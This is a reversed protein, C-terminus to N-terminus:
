AFKIILWLTSNEFSSPVILNVYSLSRTFGLVLAHISAELVFLLPITSFSYLM